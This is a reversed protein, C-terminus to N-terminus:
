NGSKLMEAMIAANESLDQRDQTEWWWIYVRMEEGAEPIRRLLATSQDFNGIWAYHYGLVKQVGRHNPSEQYAIELYDVATHFDRRLSAILGLRHNATANDPRYQLAQKFRNEAYALSAVNSGDQWEGSPFNALEVRAMEVAGLNAYWASLFPRRFGLLLALFLVAFGGLGIVTWRTKRWGWAEANAMSRQGAQKSVPMLPQALAVAMGAQLFVFPSGHQGYIADTVLGHLCMVALSSAASWALGTSRVRLSRALLWVSGILITALALLGFLGQELAVELFINHSYEIFYYPIVLIYQSYIGPFSRLGSGTFPFDAVLLLTNRAIEARSSVSAPGPLSDLLQLVGGPFKTTFWFGLLILPLILLIFLIWRRLSFLRAFPGSLAWLVSIGLVLGLSLIAGRSTTMLLGAFILGFIVLSGITLAVKRQKRADILTHLNFPLLVALISAVNNPHMLPAQLSPRVSMWWLGIQSILPIKTQQLQWDNTLLFYVAFGAGVVGLFGSFLRLNAEKQYSLAYYLLVSAILM